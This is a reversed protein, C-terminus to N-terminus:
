RVLRLIGFCPPFHFSRGETIPSWAMLRRQADSGKGDARYFNIRWQTGPRTRAGMPALPIRMECTWIHERRDIRTAHQFGSEWKPDYFPTKTKDIELDIWLNNPAVEFEYYHTMVAPQPNLFVEAVDREWLKMRERAPNEGEYLNLSAYRCRFAFYIQKASWRSAARTAAQPYDPRGSLVHDFRAWEVRRWAAKALDGDPVFDERMFRSKISLRSIYASKPNTTM